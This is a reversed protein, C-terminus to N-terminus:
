LHLEPEIVALALAATGVGKYLVLDTAALRGSVAGRVVDGLEHVELWELHGTAVTEILDAARTRAADLDDTAVFRSRVITRYDLERGDPRTAGLALVLRCSTLWEDRLLPDRARTACVVLTADAVARQGAARRDLLPVEGLDRVTRLCALTTTALPGSGVVVCTVAAPGLLDAAVAAAAGAALRTLADAEVVALPRAAADFVTLVAGDAGRTSASALVSPGALAARVLPTGDAAVAADDRPEPGAALAARVRAVADAPAVRAVVEAETIHRM